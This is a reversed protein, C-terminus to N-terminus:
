GDKAGIEIFLNLGKQLYAISNAFDNKEKYLSGINIYSMAIRQKYELVKYIKLAILYNELAIELKKQEHYNIAISQYSDAMGRKDEIEERIKLSAFYNELAKEYNGQDDYILGINNYSYAIGSKDGIEERIKLSTFHNKLAKDYIGQSYYIAGINYYSVATAKQATQKIVSQKAESAIVTALQLAINGYLQASDYNSIIIYEWCLQNLHIIQNTDAEDTKLLQLLSDIKGNQAFLFSQYIFFLILFLIRKM